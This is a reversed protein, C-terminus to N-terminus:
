YGSGGQSLLRCMPNLISLTTLRLDKSRDLVLDLAGTTAGHGDSWLRLSALSRRLIKRESKSAVASDLHQILCRLTEQCNQSLRSIVGHEQHEPNPDTREQWLKIQDHDPTLRTLGDRTLREM